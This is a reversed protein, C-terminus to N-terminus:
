RLENLKLAAVYRYLQVLLIIIIDFGKLVYFMSNKICLAFYNLFGKTM